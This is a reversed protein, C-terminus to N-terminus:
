GTDPGIKATQGSQCASQRGVRPPQVPGQPLVVPGGCGFDAWRSTKFGWRYISV